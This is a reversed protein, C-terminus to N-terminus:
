SHTEHTAHEHIITHMIANFGAHTNQDHTHNHSQALRRGLELGRALSIDARTRLPLDISLRRSGTGFRWRTLARNQSSMCQKANNRDEASKQSM